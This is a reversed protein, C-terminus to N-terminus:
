VVDLVALAASPTMGAISSVREKVRKPDDQLSAEPMPHSQAGTAVARGRAASIQIQLHSSTRVGNRCSLQMIAIIM